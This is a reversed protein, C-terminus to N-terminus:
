ANKPYRNRHGDRSPMLSASGVTGAEGEGAVGLTQFMIDNQGPGAQTFFLTRGDHSWTPSWQTMSGGAVMGDANWSFSEPNVSFRWPRGDVDNSDCM